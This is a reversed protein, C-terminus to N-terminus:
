VFWLAGTDGFLDAVKISKSREAAGGAIWEDGTVYWWRASM